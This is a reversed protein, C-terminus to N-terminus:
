HDTFRAAGTIHSIGLFRLYRLDVPQGNLANVARMRYLMGTNPGGNPLNLPPLVSIAFNGGPFTEMDADPANLAETGPPAEQTVRIRRLPTVLNPALPSHFHAGLAKAQAETVNRAVVDGEGDAFTYANGVPEQGDAEAQLSNDAPVRAISVGLILPSESTTTGSFTQGQSSATWGARESGGEASITFPGIRLGTAVKFKEYFSQYTSKSTRITFNPKYGVYMGTKLVNFFGNKGFVAQTGDGGYASYGRVFPGNVKSRAFAGNYWDSPQIQIQDLAEFELSVELENDTEFETIREWKGSVQVEWFLKPISVAGGAWTKSYDYSQDRATFGMTGGAPGTGAKVADVWASASQSIQYNPVLPAKSLGPDNLRAYFDQNAFQKQADGLGPTNAQDVLADYNLQAQAAKKYTADLQISWGRGALTGLWATFSPKNDVVDSDDAYAQRAQNNVTTYANTATTLADAAQRLQDRLKPDDTAAPIVNLFEQYAMNVRDASSAYMGVASWQPAASCFDYQAAGIYGVNQTAWTWPTFPYVLQFNNPSAGLSNILAGYLLGWPKQDFDIATSRDAERLTDLMARDRAGSRFLSHEGLPAAATDGAKTSPSSTKTSM